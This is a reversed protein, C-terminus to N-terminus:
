APPEGRAHAKAASLNSVTDVAAAGDETSVMERMGSGPSGTGAIASGVSAIRAPPRARHSPEDTSASASTHGSHTEIRGFATALKTSKVTDCSAACLATDVFVVAVVHIPRM